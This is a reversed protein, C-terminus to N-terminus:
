PKLIGEFETFVQRENMLVHSDFSPGKWPFDPMSILTDQPDQDDVAFQFKPKGRKLKAVFEQMEQKSWKKGGLEVHNLDRISALSDVCKPTVSTASIVLWTLQKMDKLNTIGADTIKPNCSLSVIKLSKSKALMRLDDDTLNCSDAVLQHLNPLSNIQELIARGDRMDAIDLCELHALVPSNLLDSARLRDCYGVTLGLLSQLPALFRLDEPGFGTKGVCLAKLGRFKALKAFTRSDVKESGAFNIVSLDDPGFGDWLQPNDILYSSPWLGIAKGKPIMVKMEAQFFRMEDFCLKGLSRVEPPFRFFRQDGNTELYLTGPSIAATGSASANATAKEQSRLGGMTFYCIAFGAAFILVALAAVLAILTSKSKGAGGAPEPQLFQTTQGQRSAIAPKPKAVPIANLNSDAQTFPILDVVLANATQYRQNPDKDLLKAVIHELAPPFSTGLSAEKLSLQAETQHKMMTSLATEGMFPPAGTLLEYFVCGISYLDTRQDIMVGTCQEPSMYLPSGFIEGTKTLTQQNFDDIGTLKAIGFDVLKVGEKEGEVAPPIVMINTPKLDRHIIGQDHAYQVAFAVQIMIDVTRKIPLSGVKKTLDSLTEGEVLDMLIFPRGDSLLDFEHVKILNPHDLKSAAKAENQFRRWTVDNPQQQKNLCKLAFQRGLYVHDVRYVSGMGGKGLLEVIKFKGLITEGPTLAIQAPPSNSDADSTVKTAEFPDM